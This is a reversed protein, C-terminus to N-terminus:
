RRGGRNVLWVKSMVWSVAIGVICGFIVEAVQLGRCTLLRRLAKRMEPEDDLVGITPRALAM